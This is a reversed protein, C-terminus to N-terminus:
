FQESSVMGVYFLFGIQGFRASRCINISISSVPLEIESSEVHKSHQFGKPADGIRATLNYSIYSM